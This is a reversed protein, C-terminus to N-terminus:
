RREPIFIVAVDKREKADKLRMYDYRGDVYQVRVFM